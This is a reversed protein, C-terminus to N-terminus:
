KINDANCSNARRNWLNMAQTFISNPGNDYQPENEDELSYPIPTWLAKSRAGCIDCAVYIFSCDAHSDAQM